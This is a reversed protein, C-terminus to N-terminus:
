VTMFVKAKGPQNKYGGRCKLWLSWELCRCLESLSKKKQHSVKSTKRNIWLCWITHRHIHNCRIKIDTCTLGLLCSGMNCLFKFAAAKLKEKDQPEFELHPISNISMIPQQWLAIMIVSCWRSMRRHLNRSRSTQHWKTKTENQRM